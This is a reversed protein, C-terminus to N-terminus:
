HADRDRFADDLALVLDGVVQPAADRALASRGSTGAVPAHSAVTGAACPTAGHQATPNFTCRRAALWQAKARQLNVTIRTRHAHAALGALQGGVLEVQQHRQGFPGAAHERAVLDHVRQAAVRHLGEVAADVDVHRTNAGGDLVIGSLGSADEGHPTGPVDERPPLVFVTESLNFERAIAQMRATDLGDCDRVVALPNGTLPQETFVDLTAFRRKM